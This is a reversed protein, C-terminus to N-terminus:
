RPNQTDLQKQQQSLATFTINQCFFVIEKGLRAMKLYNEVKISYDSFWMKTTKAAKRYRSFVIVNV